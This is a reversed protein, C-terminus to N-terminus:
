ASDDLDELAEKLRPLVPALKAEAPGKADGLEDTLQRLTLRAYAVPDVLEGTAAWRARAFDEDTWEPNDDHDAPPKPRLEREM